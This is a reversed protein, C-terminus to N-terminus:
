GPNGFLGRVRYYLSKLCENEVMVIGEEHRWWDTASYLGPPAPILRIDMDRERFAHDLSWKARRSQFHGTVILASDYGHRSMWDHIFVAESYTSYFPRPGWQVDRPDIRHYDLAAQCQRREMEYLDRSPIGHDLTQPMTLLIRPAYGARYLEIARELRREGGGILVVVVDCPQIESEYVLSKAIGTLIPQRFYYAASLMLLLSALFAALLRHKRTIFGSRKEGEGKPPPGHHPVSSNGPRDGPDAREFYKM